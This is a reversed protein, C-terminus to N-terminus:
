RNGYLVDLVPKCAIWTEAVYDLIRPSQTARCTKYSFRAGIGLQLNSQKQVFAKYTAQLWQIQVKVEKNKGSPFATRLDFEVRADHIPASSQTPYHRQMAEVYPSAGKDGKLVKILNSNVRNMLEWFGDDGLEKLNRRLVGSIGNPITIIAIAREAQISLTLHPNKTHQGKDTSSKLPIFDWVYNSDKGTIANRGKGKPDMGLKNALDKRARLEEMALKLIRKAELYNYPQGNGFPIGSFVTLTGERLYGEEAWKSEAIEFYESAIRAWHSDRNRRILWTYIESWTKFYASEPLKIRPKEVHIVLLEIDEYGRRQATRIHRNLQDLTPSASVKSEVLLCWEEEDYIWADPLGDSEEESRGAEGPLSQEVISITKPPKKGTIWNVFDSLLRKDDGVLSCVLSHTLRNEPHKYQDFINRM